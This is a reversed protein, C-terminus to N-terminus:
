VLSSGWNCQNALGIAKANAVNGVVVNPCTKPLTYLHAFLGLGNTSSSPIFLLFNFGDFQGVVFLSCLLFNGL